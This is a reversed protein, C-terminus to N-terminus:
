FDWRILHRHKWDERLAHGFVAGGVIVRAEINHDKSGPLSVLTGNALILWAGSWPRNSDHGVINGANDISTPHFLFPVNLWRLGADASWIMARRDGKEDDAEGMVVGSDNIRLAFFPRGAPGDIFIVGATESWVFSCVQHTSQYWGLIQGKNNIDLADSWRDETGSILKMGESKTWRFARRYDTQPTAPSKSVFGVVVDYDNVAKAASNNAHTVGLDLIPGGDRWLFARWLNEKTASNGVVVNANNVDTASSMAGGLTQLDLPEQGKIWVFARPPDTVPSRMQGVISGQENASSMALYRENMDSLEHGVVSSEEKLQLVCDIRKAAVADSSAVTAFTSQRVQGFFGPLFKARMESFNVGHTIVIPELPGIVKGYTEGSGGGLSDISYCLCSTSIGNKSERGAADANAQALRHRMVNAPVREESMRRLAIRDENPVTDDLGTVYVHTGGAGGINSRLGSNAPRPIRGKTSHTNSVIAVRPLGLEYAALIFSHDQFKDRQLQIHRIWESGRTELIQVVNDFTPNPGLSVIWEAASIYTPKYDWRGVGCYTLYGAWDKYTLTIIKPSEGELPIWKGDPGVNFNALRFDASQHIGNASVVTINLTM